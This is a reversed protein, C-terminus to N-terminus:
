DQFARWHEDAAPPTPPHDRPPSPLKIHRAARAEAEVILEERTKGPPPLPFDISHGLQYDHQLALLYAEAFAGERIFRVLKERLTITQVTGGIQDVLSWFLSLGYDHAVRPRVPAPPVPWWPADPKKQITAPSDGQVKADPTNM